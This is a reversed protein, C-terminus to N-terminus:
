KWFKIFDMGAGPTMAIMNEATGELGLVEMGLAYLLVRQIMFGQKSCIPVPIMTRATAKRSLRNAQTTPQSHQRCNGGSCAFM